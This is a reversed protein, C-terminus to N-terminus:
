GTGKPRELFAPLLDAMIRRSAKDDQGLIDRLPPGILADGFATLAIFLVAAKIRERPLQPDHGAMEDVADVVGLVAQRVPELRSTDGTMVIWSALRGAGGEGFADFVADVLERPASQDTRLRAVAADLADRLDDVMSGMLAAQLDSASGFHHILNAHTVGIKKAVASLTVADPGAQLLLSRAAALAESRAEDPTRRRRKQVTKEKPM